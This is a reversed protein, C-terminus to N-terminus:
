ESSPPATGVRQAARADIAKVARWANALGAGYGDDRAPPGLHRATSMLANRAQDPSLSRNREVLLAVIGSVQAAAVSTGSTLQVGANPAPVLIDVGPAAVAIYSGRNAQPFLRDDADTATVAIVNPDAAPYLPPSKPGANGAAAVLIVGKQRAQALADQLVPDQPGAFSMNVVRAGHAVAWDLGRIINFTTAQAGSAGDGFARVALLEVRPAAGMLRGHAAIAGAMATGHSHPMAAGGVADFSGVIVGQLEPQASDVASDIVAVLVHDGTALHHAEPLHLKAIAYQAPDGEGSGARGAQDQLTFTFNPQAGSVDGEDQLDRIVDAVPRGDDVRWRYLTHGTLGFSVSGVRSLHHRQALTQLTEPSVNSPMDLVVENGVFRREQIPPVFFGRRFIGNRVAGNRFAAAPRRWFRTRADLHLGGRSANLGHGGFLRLQAWGPRGARLGRAHPALEHWPSWGVLGFGAAFAPSAATLALMFALAGALSRPQLWRAVCGLAGWSAGGGSTM